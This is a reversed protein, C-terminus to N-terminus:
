FKAGADAFWKGNFLQMQSKVMQAFKHDVTLEKLNDIFVAEFVELKPFVNAAPLSSVSFYNTRLSELAPAHKVLFSLLENDITNYKLHKLSSMTRILKQHANRERVKIKNKLELFEITTNDRFEPIDEALIEPLSSGITLSKLRPMRLILQLLPQSLQVYINLTELTEVHARLFVHFIHASNVGEPYEVSLKRLKFKIERNLHELCAGDPVIACLEKLNRNNCLLDRMGSTAEPIERAPLECRFTSLSSVRVFYKFVNLNSVDVELFKLCPFTLGAAVSSTESSSRYWDAITLEEVTPEIIDLIEPWANRLLRAYTSINVSKWLGAGKALLDFLFELDDQFICIEIHQYKRCSNKLVEKHESTLNPRKDEAIVLKLKGAQKREGVLKNWKKTVTSIEILEKGDFHQFVYQCLLMPFWEFIDFNAANGTYSYILVNM